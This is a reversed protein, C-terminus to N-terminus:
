TPNIGEDGDFPETPQHDSTLDSRPRTTAEALVILVLIPAFARAANNGFDWVWSSSIVGLASWAVIPWRLWTDRLVAYVLGAAVSVLSFAVYLLDGASAESWTSWAGFIGMMPWTLNGAESVGGDIATTLYLTWLVVVSVPILLLSWRRHRKNLMLAAPTLLYVDKALGAAAFLWAAGRWGLYVTVLAAVTLGTALVDSTLLRLSLWIGPNLLMGLAWWESRNSTVAGAAIAGTGLSFSALAIAIMGYLLATGDLVGGLSSLFSYLIRRYRYLGHDFLPALESGDLDLAIAYFLQGDHGLDEALPVEGLTEEIAPRLENAEGVQLLGKVGGVAFSQSLLLFGGVIAGIATWKWFAFRPTM